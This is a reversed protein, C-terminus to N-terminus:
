HCNPFFRTQPIVNSPSMLLLRDIMGTKDRPQINLEMKGYSREWIIEAEVLVGLPFPNHQYLAVCVCVQM